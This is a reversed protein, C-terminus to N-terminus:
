RRLVADRRKSDEYQPGSQLCGAREVEGFSQLEVEIVALLRGLREPEVRRERVKAVYRLGDPHNPEIKTLVRVSDVAHPYQAALLLLRHRSFEVGLLLQRAVVLILDHTRPRQLPSRRALDAVKADRHGPRSLLPAACPGRAREAPRRGTRWFARGVSNRQGEEVLAALRQEVAVVQPRLHHRWRLRVAVDAAARPEHQAPAVERGEAVPQLTDELRREPAHLLAVDREHPVIHTRRGRGVQRGRRQGAERGRIVCGGVARGEDARGRDGDVRGVVRREESAGAKLHRRLVYGEGVVVPGLRRHHFREVGAVRGHVASGQPELTAPLEDVM